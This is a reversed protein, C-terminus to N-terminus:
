IETKQGEKSGSDALFVAIVSGFLIAAYGGFFYVSAVFVALVAIAAMAAFVNSKM